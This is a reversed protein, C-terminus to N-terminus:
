LEGKDRERRRKKLWGFIFFLPPGFICFAPWILVLWKGWAVVALIAAAISLWKVVPWIGLLASGTIPLNMGFVSEDNASRKIERQTM